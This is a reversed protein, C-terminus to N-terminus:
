DVEDDNMSPLFLFSFPGDLDPLDPRSREGKVGALKNINIGAAVQV